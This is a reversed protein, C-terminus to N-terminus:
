KMATTWGSLDVGHASRGEAQKATNNKNQTREAHRQARLICGGNGISFAQPLELPRHLLELFAVGRQFTFNLFEVFLDPGNAGIKDSGGFFDTESPFPTTKV